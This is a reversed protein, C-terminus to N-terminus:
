IKLWTWKTTRDLLVSAPTSPAVRGAKVVAPKWLGDPPRADGADAM